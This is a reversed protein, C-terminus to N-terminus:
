RPSVMLQVNVYPRSSDTYEHSGVRNAVWTYSKGPQICTAVIGRNPNCPGSDFAGNTARVGHPKTDANRWVVKYGAFVSAQPPDVLPKGSKDGNITIIFSPVEQTRTPRPRAKTPRPTPRKTTATPTPDGVKPGVKKKGPPPTTFLSNPGKNKADLDVDKGTEAGPGCATLLLAASIAAVSLRRPSTM